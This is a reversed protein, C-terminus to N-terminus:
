DTVPPLPEHRRQKINPFEKSFKPLLVPSHLFLCESLHGFNKSIKPLRRFDESFDSFTAFHEFRGELMKSKKLFNESIIPLRRFDESFKQFQRLISLVIKWCKQITKLRRFSDSTKPFKRLEESFIPFHRFTRM